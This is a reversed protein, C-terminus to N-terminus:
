KNIAEKRIKIFGFLITILIPLIMSLVKSGIFMQAQVILKITDGAPVIDGYGVTFFTVSSFYLPDM